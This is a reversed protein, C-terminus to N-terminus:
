YIDRGQIYEMAIKTKITQDLRARFAKFKVILDLLEDHNEILASNGMSLDGLFDDANALARDAYNLHADLVALDVRNRSM